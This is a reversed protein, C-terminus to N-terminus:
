SAPQMVGITEPAFGPFVKSTDVNFRSRLVETLVSRYDRTVRLDGDTLSAPALSPWQGYVQGGRVGAGALLMVNGYGHDLGASDNEVVRRGFETVTVVTVRAKLAGLDTFFAALATSLESVMRIMAGYELTGLGAHMDWNGSDVTIIEAGVDARILRASESLSKGLDGLPYTAGNFPLTPNANISSFTNATALASRAGRGLVGPAGDWAAHLSAVRRARWEPEDRGSISMDKLQGIALVPEPGYLSGPVLQSGMQVAELSSREADLGILRNLWGRREPSGPDADEVQEMAAFHSRNPSHLGVAHVAAMEGARWMPALAAFQPHLGFRDDKELLAATPIALRPRSRAYDPDGHPVVLSLGDAGGRLSLVVLVNPATGTAAFAVQRFAQGSVSSVVGAGAMATMGKLISRRSATFEQCGCHETTTM